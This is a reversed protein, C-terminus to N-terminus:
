WCSTPPLGSCPLGTQSGPRTTPQLLAASPDLVGTDKPYQGEKKPWWKPKRNGSPILWRKAVKISRALLTTSFFLPLDEFALQLLQRQFSPARIGLQCSCHWHM